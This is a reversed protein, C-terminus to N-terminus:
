LYKWEYGKTTKLKTNGRACSCINGRNFKTIRSAESASKFIRILIGDKYQGIRKDGDSIHLGTKRAHANNEKCSVWELNTLSCNCKDGDIHNVQPKNEPNPIFARAFLIHLTRLYLKGEKKLSIVPYGRKGVSIKRVKKTDKKRIRAKNSIEYNPFEEIDIWYEEPHNVKDEM